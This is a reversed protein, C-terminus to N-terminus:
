FRRRSKLDERLQYNQERLWRNEEALRDCNVRWEANALRARELDDDNQEIRKLLSLVEQQLRDTQEVYVGRISVKQRLEKLGMQRAEQAEDLEEEEDITTSPLRTLNLPAERGVEGTEDGDTDEELPRKPSSPLGSINLLIKRRGEAIEDDETDEELPRKSHRVLSPGKWDESCEESVTRSLACLYQRHVKREETRDESVTRSIAATASNKKSLERSSPLHTGLRAATNRREFQPRLGQLRAEMNEGDKCVIILDGTSAQTELSPLDFYTPPCSSESLYTCKWAGDM